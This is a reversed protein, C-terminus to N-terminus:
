NLRTPDAELTKNFMIKESFQNETKPDHESGKRKRHIFDSAPEMIKIYRTKKWRVPIWGRTLGSSM